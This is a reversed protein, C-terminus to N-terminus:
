TIKLKMSQDFAPPAAGRDVLLTDVGDVRLRLYYDGAQLGAVAFVLPDSQRQRPQTVFEADGVFLSARQELLVEPSVTITLTFKGTGDRQAPSPKFDTIVPAISVPLENTSRRYNEKDRKVLVALTYFGAPWTSPENPVRVSLETSTANADPAVEIGNAWHPNEFLVGVNTGDLHFGSLAVLENLRASPRKNQPTVSDLHPFPPTLDAQAVPGSDDVGRM